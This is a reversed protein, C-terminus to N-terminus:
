RISGENYSHGNCLLIIHTYNTHFKVLISHMVFQLASSVNNRVVLATIVTKAHSSDVKSKKAQPAPTSAAVVPAKVKAASASRAPKVEKAIIERVGDGGLFQVQLEKQQKGVSKLMKAFSGANTKTLEKGNLHTIKDGPFLKGRNKETDIAKIRIFGEITTITVGLPGEMSIKRSCGIALKQMTVLEGGNSSASVNAALLEKGKKLADQDIKVDIVEDGELDEDDPTYNPNLPAGDFIFKCDSKTVGYKHICVWDMLKQFKENPLISFEDYSETSGNVRIKVKIGGVSGAVSRSAGKENSASNVQIQQPMRQIQKVRQQEDCIYIDCLANGVGVTDCSLDNPSLAPDIQFYKTELLVRKLSSYGHMNRYAKLLKDFPDTAILQFTHTKTPDGGKIRTKIQVHKVSASAGANIKGSTNTTNTPPANKPIHISVDVLDEDGVDHQAITGKAPMTLGDFLFHVTAHTTIVADMRERYRRLVVEWTTGTRFNMIISKGHIAKCGHDAPSSKINARFQIRINPGTAPPESVVAAKSVPPAVSHVILNEDDDGDDDDDADLLHVPQEELAERALRAKKILDSEFVGGDDNDSDDSDLSILPTKTESPVPIANSPKASTVGSGKAVVEDDNDSDSDVYIAKMIDKRTNRSQFKNSNLQRLVPDDSDSDSHSGASAKKAVKTKPSFSKKKFTFADDDSSESDLEDQTTKGITSQFPRKKSPARVSSLSSDDSDSM